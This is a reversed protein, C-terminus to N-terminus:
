SNTISGSANSVVVTSGDGIGTLNAGTAYAIINNQFATDNADTLTGTVFTGTIPSETATFDFEVNATQTPAYNPSSGATFAVQQRAYGAADAEQDRGAIGIGTLLAMYRTSSPSIGFAAELAVKKGLRGFPM